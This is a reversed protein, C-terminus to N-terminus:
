AASGTVPAYNNKFSPPGTMPLIGVPYFLGTINNATAVNLQYGADITPMKIYRTTEVNKAAAEADLHRSQLLHQKQEAIEIASKLSFPTEIPQQAALDTTLLLGVFLGCLNQKQHFM